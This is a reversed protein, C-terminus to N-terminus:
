EANRTDPALAVLFVLCFAANKPRLKGGIPKEFDLWFFGSRGEIILAQRYRSM